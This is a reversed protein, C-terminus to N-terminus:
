TTQSANGCKHRTKRVRASGFV